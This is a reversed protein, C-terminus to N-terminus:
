LPPIVGGAGGGGQPSIDDSLAAVSLYAKVGEVNESPLRTGGSMVKAKSALDLAEQSITASETRLAKQPTESQNTQSHKVQTESTQYSSVLNNSNNNVNM